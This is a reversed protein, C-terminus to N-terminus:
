SGRLTQIDVERHQTDKPSNVGGPRLSRTPLISINITGAGLKTATLLLSIIYTFTSPVTGPVYYAHQFPQSNNDYYYFNCNNNRGDDM